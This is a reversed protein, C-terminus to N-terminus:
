RTRASRAMQTADLNSLGSPAFGAIQTSSLAGIQTTALAAINTTNLV